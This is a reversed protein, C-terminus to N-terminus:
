KQVYWWDSGERIWNERVPTKTRIRQFEYEIAVQSECTDAACSVKEVKASKWFGRRISTVYDEYTLVARSGPSFYSYATKLDGKVLADWRAQSRERVIDEAKPQMGACGAVALALFVPFLLTWSRLGTKVGQQTSLSNM